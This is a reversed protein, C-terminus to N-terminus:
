GALGLAEWRPNYTTGALAAVAREADTQARILAIRRIESETPDLVNVRHFRWVRGAKDRNPVQQSIRKISIRQGEIETKKNKYKVVKVVRKGRGESSGAFDLVAEHTKVGRAEMGSWMGGSVVYSGVPSALNRHFIDENRLKSWARINVGAKRSYEPSINVRSKKGYVTRPQRDSLKGRTTVRQKVMKGLLAVLEVAKVVRSKLLANSSQKKTLRALVGDVVFFAIGQQKLSEQRSLTTRKRSM